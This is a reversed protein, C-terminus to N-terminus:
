ASQRAAAKLIPFLVAEETDLHMNLMALLRDLKKQIESINSANPTLMRDLDTIEQDIMKHEHRMTETFRYNGTKFYRDIREYAARTEMKAHSQLPGTLFSHVDALWFEREVPSMRAFKGMSSAISSLKEKLAGHTEYFEDVVDPNASVPLALTLPILISLALASVSKM